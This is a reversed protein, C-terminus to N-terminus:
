LKALHAALQDLTGGYGQQMSPLGAIFVEREAATANLPTATLTMTTRGDQEVLTTTSLTELPWGPAFPHRTQGGDEDSFSVVTVLREPPAVERFVWKGWMMGGDPAQLGYHFLGGPRLDVTCARVTFGKPGWWEVLHGHETLARFVLTRPADFARTISFEALQVQVLRVARM